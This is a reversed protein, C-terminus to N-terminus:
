NPKNQYFIKPEPLVLHVLHDCNGRKISNVCGVIYLSPRVDSTGMKPGEDEGRGFAQLMEMGHVGVVKVFNGEFESNNEKFTNEKNISEM